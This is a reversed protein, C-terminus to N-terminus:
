TISAIFEELTKPVFLPEDDIQLTLKDIGNLLYAVYLKRYTRELRMEKLEEDKENVIAVAADTLTKTTDAANKSRVSEALYWGVVATMVAAIYSLIEWNM